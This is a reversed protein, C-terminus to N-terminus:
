ALREGRPRHGLEGGEVDAIQLNLNQAVGIRDPRDQTTGSPTSKRQTGRMCRTANFLRLRNPRPLVLRRPYVDVDRPDPLDAVVDGIIEVFHPSRSIDHEVTPEGTRFTRGIIGATEPLGDLIELYGRVAQCRLRGGRELYVSPLAGPVEALHDVVAWCAAAVDPAAALRDSIPTPM